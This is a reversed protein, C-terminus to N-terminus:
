SPHSGDMVQGFFDLLSKSVKEKLSFLIRFKNILKNPKLGDLIFKGYHSFRERECM